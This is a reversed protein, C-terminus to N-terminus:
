KPKAIVIYGNGLDSNIFFRQIYDFFCFALKGIPNNLLFFLRNEINREIGSRYSGTFQDPSSNNLLDKKHQRHRFPALINSLPFGYNEIKIIEFGSKGFLKILDKRDYRRIHGAWKDTATWKKSHAPVSLFLRGNPMLYNHWNNIASLDDIIHELVEFAFVYNYKIQTRPLDAITKNLTDQNFFRTLSLAKSSEDFATCSFGKHFLESILAGAGSGIELVTGSPYKDLLKLIRARRLLYRPAPVWIDCYPGLHKDVLIKM